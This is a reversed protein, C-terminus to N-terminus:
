KDGPAIMRGSATATPVEIVHENDTRVREPVGKAPDAVVGDAILQRMQAKTRTRRPRHVALDDDIVTWGRAELVEPATDGPVTTRYGSADSVLLTDPKTM